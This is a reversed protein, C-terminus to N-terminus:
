ADRISTGHPPLYSRGDRIRVKGVALYRLYNCVGIPLRRVYRLCRPWNVEFRLFYRLQAGLRSPVGCDKWVQEEENSKHVQLVFKWYFTYKEKERFHLQLLTHPM